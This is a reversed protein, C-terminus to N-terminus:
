PASKIKEKLFIAAVQNALEACGIDNMGQLRGAIFGASFADGAGTSDIGSMLQSVAVRTREKGRSVICGDKGLSVVSLHTMRGLETLINATNEEGTMAKAEDLNLILVDVFSNVTESYLGTIINPAGPNFWIEAKGKCSQMLNQIVGANKLLSYGTFYVIKSKIIEGLRSEFESKTLHDNAGRSAVMTREGDEYVLSVCLGTPHEKDVETLVEVNQRKLNDTFFSGMADSGIKGIFKVKENQKALQVAVNATGGCSVGMDEYHTEGRRISHIPVLIDVFADGIVTVAM